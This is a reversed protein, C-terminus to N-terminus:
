ILLDLIRIIDQRDRLFSSEFSRHLLQLSPGHTHQILNSVEYKQNEFEGALFMIIDSNKISAEPLTWWRMPRRTTFGYEGQSVELTAQERSALFSPLTIDSYRPDIYSLNPQYRYRFRISNFSPSPSSATRKQLTIRFKIQPTLVPLIFGSSERNGFRTLSYDIMTIDSWSIGNDISYSYKVRNIAPDTSDRAIFFDIDQFNELIFNETDIYELTSTPSSISFATPTGNSNTLVSINNSSLTVDSPTSVVLHHYGYKQYGELYGTGMCLAHDRDPSSKIQNANSDDGSKSWCYCKVLGEPETGYLTIASNRFYTCPSGAGRMKARLLNLTREYLHYKDIVSRPDVRVPTTWRM